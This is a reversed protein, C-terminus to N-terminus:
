GLLRQDAYWTPTPTNKEFPSVEILFYVSLTGVLLFLIFYALHWCNHDFLDYLGFCSEGMAYCLITSSLPEVVHVTFRHHCLSPWKIHARPQSVYSVSQEYSMVIIFYHFVEKVSLISKWHFIYWFLFILLNSFLFAEVIQWFSISWSYSLCSIIYNTM